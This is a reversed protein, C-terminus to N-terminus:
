SKAAYYRELRGNHLVAGAEDSATSARTSFQTMSKITWDRRGHKGAYLLRQEGTRATHPNGHMLSNRDAVIQLFVSALTRLRAKDPDTDALSEVAKSFWESIQGATMTSSKQLFGPQLTEGLWIVGFELYLFNYTARGLARLYADDAPIREAPETM